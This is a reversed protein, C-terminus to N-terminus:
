VVRGEERNSETKISERQFLQAVITPKHRVRLKTLSYIPYKLADVKYKYKYKFYRKV